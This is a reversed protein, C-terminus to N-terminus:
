ADACISQACPAVNLGDTVNIFQLLTAPAEGVIGHGPARAIVNARAKAAHLCALVDDEEPALGCANQNGSNQMFPHERIPM